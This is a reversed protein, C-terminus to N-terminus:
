LRFLTLVFNLNYQMDTTNLADNMLCSIDLECCVYGSVYTGIHKPEVRAKVLSPKHASGPIHASSKNSRKTTKAPQYDSDDDSEDGSSSEADAARVHQAKMHRQLGCCIVDISM